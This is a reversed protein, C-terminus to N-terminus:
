SQAIYKIHLVDNAALTVSAIRIAGADGGASYPSDQDVISLASAAITLLGSAGAASDDQHMCSVIASLPENLQVVVDAGNVVYLHSDAFRVVLEQVKLQQGQVKDDKGRFTAM